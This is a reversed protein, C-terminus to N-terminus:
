QKKAIKRELRNIRNDWDYGWGEKKGKKSLTLAEELKNLKELIIALQEYGTHGPLSDNNSEKKFAIKAQSSLEIQERCATIAKDLYGEVERNKYYQIIRHQIEFHKNLITEYDKSNIKLNENKIFNKPYELKYIKRFKDYEIIIKSLVEEGGEIKDVLQQRISEILKAYSINTLSLDNKLLGKQIANMHWIIRENKIPYDLSSIISNFPSKKKIFNDKIFDIIKFFM